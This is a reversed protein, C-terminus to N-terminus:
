LELPRKRKQAEELVFVILGLTMRIGFFARSSRTSQLILNSMLFDPADPGNFGDYIGVFLWGHEESLVVHVRDEGAQGQAWQLNAQEKTDPDSSADYNGVM